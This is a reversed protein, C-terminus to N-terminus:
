RVNDLVGLPDLLVQSAHLLGGESGIAQQSIGCFTAHFAHAFSCLPQTFTCGPQHGLLRPTVYTPHAVPSPM